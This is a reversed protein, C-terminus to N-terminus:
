KEKKEGFNLVPLPLAEVKNETIVTDLIVGNAGYNPQVSLEQLKQLNELPMAKLEEESFTCKTNAVLSAIAETKQKNHTAIASNLVGAIESPAAKLYSEVTVPAEEEVIAVPAVPATEVPAPIVVEAPKAEPTANIIAFQEDTLGELFVSDESKWKSETNAVLAQVSEKRSM